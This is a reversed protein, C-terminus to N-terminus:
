RSRYPELFTSKVQESRRVYYVTAFAFLVTRILQADLDDKYGSLSAPVPMTHYLLVLAVRGAVLLGAFWVYMRPFIDRRLCCWYFVAAAGALFFLHLTLDVLFLLTPGNGANIYPDWTYHNFYNYLMFHVLQLLISIGIVAGLVFTWGGLPYGSGPAYLTDISRTNLYRFLATCAMAFFFTIWIAPWCPSFPASPQMKVAPSDDPIGDPTMPKYLNFALRRYMNEYDTKYQAIESVPIHDKLLKLSYHLRIHDNTITPIFDFRYSNNSIHIEEDKFSWNEPLSFNVTYDITQPYSLRLPVTAKTPPDPLYDDIMRAKFYFEKRGKEKMNWLQPISYRETVTFTNKLSDDTYEVPGDWQIDQFIDEYYQRYNDEMDKVSNEAFDGRVRDAAGGSYTTYVEYRSTDYFRADLTESVTIHNQLYPEVPQLRDEGERLVLAYGYAPIYLNILEGRQNTITPDVYIFVGKSREIAVIAHDFVDPSPLKDILKTRLSTGILAVYASLGEQRLISALLLAKDKCDGFRHTYTDAPAHPEHTHPGIELALYRVDNQVFRTALNAFVDKDGAATKEWASIKERLNSPLPFNYHRFTTLGWKVVDGWNNYESLYITPYSNFWSPAPSHSEPIKIPPNAWHYVRTNGIVQETPVPANNETRIYLQRDPTTIVTRYYNCVATTNGFSHIDSFKDGFVPNFGVVSWAVEIRDGKRIDKLTVYARKLGTYEYNNADDENQVVKVQSLQLQNIAKGERWVTIQHFIVQQFDPSFTVSVESADQVGSENIIHKITHTYETHTLLNTQADILEFYYGGSIDRTVPQRSPDTHVPYLWAPAAATQIKEKALAPLTLLGSLWFFLFTRM